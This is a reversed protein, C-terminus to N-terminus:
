PVIRPERGYSDLKTHFAVALSDFLSVCVNVDSCIIHLVNNSMTSLAFRDYCVNVIVCLIGKWM